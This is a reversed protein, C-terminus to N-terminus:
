SERLSTSRSTLKWDWGPVTVASTHGDRARNQGIRANEYKILRGGAEIGFRLRQNLFAQAVQHAAASREHDRMSKRRNPARLLDQHNFASADDLAARM